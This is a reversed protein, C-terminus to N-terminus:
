VPDSEQEDPADDPDTDPVDDDEAPVVACYMKLRGGLLASLEGGSRAFLASREADELEMAEIAAIYQEASQNALAANAGMSELFQIVNSM